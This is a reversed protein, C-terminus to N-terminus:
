ARYFIENIIDKFFGGVQDIIMFFLLFIFLVVGIGIIIAIITLIGKSLSYDHITITSTFFLSMTWLIGLTIFFMYFTGEDLTLYNSIITAPINMLILPTLAYASSIYIDTITGKGDMLTTFSWNIICWLGFPLIVSMIERYINVTSIDIPNFLFGTYLRM